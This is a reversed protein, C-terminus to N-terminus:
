LGTIVERDASNKGVIAIQGAHYLHHQIVGHVEVYISKGPASLPKDLQSDDLLLLANRFAVNSERFGDLVFKWNEETAAPMFPFNAAAEPPTVKGELRLRVETEWFTMHAVLEWVTLIHPLVRRFARTANVERIIKWVPDGHWADGDIARDYQDVIRGVETNSTM